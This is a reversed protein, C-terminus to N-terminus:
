RYRSRKLAVCHMTKKVRRQNGVLLDNSKVLGTVSSVDVDGHVPKMLYSNM